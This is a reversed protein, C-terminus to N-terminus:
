RLLELWAALVGVELLEEGSFVFFRVAV